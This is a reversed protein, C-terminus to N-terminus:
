RDTEISWTLTVDSTGAGQPAEDDVTVQFHFARVEDGDTPTWTTSQSGAAALGQLDGVDTWSPSDSCSGTMSAAVQLHAALGDDDGIAVSAQVETLDGADFSGDYTIEICAPELTEDAALGLAHVMADGDEADGFLPVEHDSGLSITGTAFRNDENTTQASFAADSTRVIALSVLLFAVVGAVVKRTTTPSLQLISM